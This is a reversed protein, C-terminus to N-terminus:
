VETGLGRNQQGFRILREETLNLREIRVLIAFQSNEMAPTRLEAEWGFVTVKARVCLTCWIQCNKGGVRKLQLCKLEGTKSFHVTFLAHILENCAEIFLLLNQPAQFQTM